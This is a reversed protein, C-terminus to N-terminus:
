MSKPLPRLEKLTVELLKVQDALEVIRRHASALKSQAIDRQLIVEDLRDKQGKRAARGKLAKQRKSLPQEARHIEVYAQIERILSPFRAKKFATPGVSAERAVNNQSVPTDKPLIRPEGAKLREFAQRFRQEATPQDVKSSM